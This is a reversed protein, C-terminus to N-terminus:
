ENTQEMTATSPTATSDQDDNKADANEQEKDQKEQENDQEDDSNNEANSDYEEPAEEEQEGLQFTGDEEENDSDAVHPGAAANETALDANVPPANEDPGKERLNESFSNDSLGQEKVFDDIIQFYQHSIMGFEITEAKSEKKDSVITILISFTGSTINSYSVHKINSTEFLMIPKKFGFIIYSPNVENASLFLLAGEKAGKYAEILVLNNAAEPGPAVAVGSDTNLTLRNRNPNSSPLYNVLNISCLYFQRKLFDIIAENIAKIGEGTDSSNDVENLQTEAEAPIKGAKILLKKVVDFNIQCIIPDAKSLENNTAENTWFCLSGINKKKTTTSNGLIPLLVCLKVLKSLDQISIEPVYTVPNAILMIPEPQDGEKVQLHLVFNMKKRLPSQFSIQPLEFIITEEAIGASTDQQEQVESQSTLLEKNDRETNLKRKKEETENYMYQYLNHFVPLSSPVQSSVAEIQQRIERPLSQLWGDAEAM